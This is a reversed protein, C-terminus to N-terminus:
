CSLSTMSKTLNETWNDTWFLWRTNWLATQNESQPLYDFVWVGIGM